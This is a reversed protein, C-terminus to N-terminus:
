SPTGEIPYDPWGAAPRQYDIIWALVRPDREILCQWGRVLEVLLREPTVDVAQLDPGLAGFTIHEQKCDGAALRWAQAPSSTPSRAAPSVPM